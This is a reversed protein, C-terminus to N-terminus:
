DMEHWVTLWLVCANRALLQGHADRVEYHLPRPSYFSLDSPSGLKGHAM